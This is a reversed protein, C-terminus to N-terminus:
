VGPPKVATAYQNLAEHLRDAAAAIWADVGTGRADHLAMEAEHVLRAAFRDSVGTTSRGAPHSFM